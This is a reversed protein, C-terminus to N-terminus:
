REWADISVSRLSQGGPCLAVADVQTAMVSIVARRSTSDVKTGNRPWHWQGDTTRYGACVIPSGNASPGIEIEITIEQLTVTDLHPFLPAQSTLLEGTVVDSVSDDPCLFRTYMGAAQAGD